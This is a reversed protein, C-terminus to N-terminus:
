TQFKHIIIFIINANIQIFNIENTLKPCYKRALKKWVGHVLQNIDYFM